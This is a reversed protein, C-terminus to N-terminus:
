IEKTYDTTREILGTYEVTFFKTDFMTELARFVCTAVIEALKFDNFQVDRYEGIECGNVVPYYLTKNEAPDLEIYVQKLVGVTITNATSM